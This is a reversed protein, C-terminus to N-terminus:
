PDLWEGKELVVAIHGLELREYPSPYSFRRRLPWTFLQRLLMFPFLPSQGEDLLAFRQWPWSWVWEGYQGALAEVFETVDDGSIGMDQDLASTASLQCEKIGAHLAALRRVDLFLDGNV